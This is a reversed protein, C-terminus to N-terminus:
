KKIHKRGKRNTIIFKSFRNRKRRTLKGRINGWPDRPIHGIVGKAEGGGHPHANPPMVMGRVTPRVGRWRNRGAKGLVENKADPNSVVGITAYCDKKFLRVEKSPLRIQAYDGDFGLLVASTGASRVITGKSNPMLEINYVQQGVPINKLPMSNGIDPSANEATIIRHGVSVNHPTIIYRKQGNDYVVLSVFANRFPDYEITTITGYVNRVSRKFDIIRYKRILRGGKHRTTVKGKSRGTPGKITVTLSKIPKGATLVSRDVLVTGRQGPTTPKLVKLAM